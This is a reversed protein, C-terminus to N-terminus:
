SLTIELPVAVEYYAVGLGSLVSVAPWHIEAKDGAVYGSGSTNLTVLAKDGSAAVSTITLAALTDKRRAKFVNTNLIATNLTSVLNESAFYADVTFVGASAGSPTRNSLIVDNVAPIHRRLDLESKMVRLDENWQRGPAYAIRIRYEPMTNSQADKWEYVYFQDMTMGTYTELNNTDVGKYVAYLVNDSDYPIVKYQAHKNNFSLVMLYYELGGDLFTYECIRRGRDIVHERQNTFTQMQPAKSKDESTDFPGIHHWRNSALDQITQLKLYAQLASVSLLASAPITLNYPVLFAGQMDKPNFTCGPKGVNRGNKFCDFTRNAILGM